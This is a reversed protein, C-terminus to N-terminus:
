SVHHIWDTKVKWEQLRKKSEPFCQLFTQILKKDKLRKFKAKSAIVAIAEAIEVSLNKGKFWPHYRTEPPMWILHSDSELRIGHTELLKALEQGVRFEGNILVDLDMTAALPFPLEALLLATQGVIKLNAPKIRPLGERRNEEEIQDIKEDLRQFLERLIDAFDKV